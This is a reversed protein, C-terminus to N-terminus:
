IGTTYDLCIWGLGSKLKGWNNKIEVMTYTGKDTIAGVVAYNTGPGKRINLVDATVKVVKGISNTQPKSTTTTTSIGQMAAKVDRRFGDMTYGTGLGNWLHEPDGHNTAIGRACGEKHSVIVGNATPSLNYQKCLYAFLKVASKYTKTAAARADALNSCTFNAGSTYRISAPECMEVGIHTNNGSGGCHWGRHNWPLTQYINGTNADIFGHVCASGFSPSNWNNIFTRANPQPCGVSHLMLGKVIIKQGTKYCPNRTLIEELINIKEEKPKVPVANSTPAKNGGPIERKHYKIYFDESYRARKNQVSINQNAPKEYQLLVLNSAVRTNTANRLGEYVSPYSEKLEKILFKLQSALNGISTGRERCYNYLNQKRNWFTWQALGYGAGDRIFNKYSGNDVLETYTDDNMNFKREFSNQLNRPRLGSEAKLNGMLGAAGHKSGLKEVLFFWIKEERTNGKLAM